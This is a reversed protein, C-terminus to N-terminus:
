GPVFLRRFALVEARSCFLCGGVRWARIRGSKVWRCITSYHLKKGPRSSPLLRSVERLPILDDSM